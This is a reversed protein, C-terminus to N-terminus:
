TDFLADSSALAFKVSRSALSLLKALTLNLILGISPKCHIDSRTAVIKQAARVLTHMCHITVLAVAIMGACM